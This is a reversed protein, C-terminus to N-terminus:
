VCGAAARASGRRGKKEEAAEVRTQVAEQLTARLLERGGEVARTECLGLVQGAPASPLTACRPSLPSPGNSPGANGRTATNLCGQRCLSVEPMGRLIWWFDELRILHRFRSACGLGAGRQPKPFFSVMARRGRDSCSVPRIAAGNPITADNRPPEGAALRLVASRPRREPGPNTLFTISIFVLSLPPLPSFALPGDADIPASSRLAPLGGDHATAAKGGQGAAFGLGSPVLRSRLPASM